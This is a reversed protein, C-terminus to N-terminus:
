LGNRVQSSQSSFKYIMLNEVFFFRRNFFLLFGCLNWVDDCYDCNTNNSGNQHPHPIKEQLKKLQEFFSKTEDYDVGFEMADWKDSYWEKFTYIPYRSNEPLVTILSEGSLDSKGKRFKGFLWFSLHQKLLCKSCVTSLELGIKESLSQEVDTIIFEKQCHECIQRM